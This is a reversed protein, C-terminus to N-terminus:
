NKKGKLSTTAGKKKEHDNKPLIESFFLNIVVEAVDCFHFIFFSVCLGFGEKSFKKRL